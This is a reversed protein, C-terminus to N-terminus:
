EWFDKVLDNPEWTDKKQTNDEDKFVILLIIIVTVMLCVFFWTAQITFFNNYIFEAM